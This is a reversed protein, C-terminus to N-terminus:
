QSLRPDDPGIKPTDISYILRIAEGTAQYAKCGPVTQGRADEYKNPTVYKGDLLRKADNPPIKLVGWNVRIATRLLEIEKPTLELEDQGVNPEVSVDISRIM